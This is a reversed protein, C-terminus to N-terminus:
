FIGREGIRRILSNSVVIMTFAVISKFLGVATTYGFKGSVIGLFFTYTEFVEGKNRVVPNLMLYIQQFNENILRGL